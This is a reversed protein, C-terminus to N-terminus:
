LILSNTAITSEIFSDQTFCLHEMPANSGTYICSQDVHEGQERHHAGHAAHEGQEDGHAAQAAPLRLSWLVHSRVVESVTGGM